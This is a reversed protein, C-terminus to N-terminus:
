GNNEEDNNDDPDPTPEPKDYNECNDDIPAYIVVDAYCGALVDAFRQWFPYIQLFEIGDLGYEDELHRLVNRVAKFGTDQVQYVNSSDNKLKDAYYLTMHYEMVNDQYQIYNLAVNFAGYAMHLSNWTTYVDGITFSEVGQTNLAYTKIDNYLTELDM